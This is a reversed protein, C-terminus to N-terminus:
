SSPESFVVFNNFMFNFVFAIGTGCLKAYAAPALELEVVQTTVATNIILGVSAGLFFLSARGRSGKVSRFLM